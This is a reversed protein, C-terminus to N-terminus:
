LPKSAFWITYPSRERGGIAAISTEEVVFGANKLREVFAGDAYASWIALLGSPRLAAFAARLGWNCYL